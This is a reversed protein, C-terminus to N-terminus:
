MENNRNNLIKKMKKHLIGADMFVCGYPIYGAKEYFPLAQLQADLEVTSIGKEMAKKELVEMMLLGIGRGRYPKLVAIRGIHGDSILRGTAVPEYVGNRTKLHVLVHLSVPDFRDIEEDAPVKQEEVFVEYRIKQIVHCAAPEQWRHLTIKTEDM